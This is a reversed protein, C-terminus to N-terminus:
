FQYKLGAYYNRGAANIGSAFTRYQTDLINEVGAYLTAGYISKSSAKFNYTKWAPMGGQPAYQENDEGNPFYDSIDKKGNYLMYAEAMFYSHDYNIGIKGYYPAIHDLPSRTGDENIIRGLTYNFNATFLVNDILYSKISTSFGTVFAKGKNQNAMVQSISGNYDITESGNFTFEDTVIADFLRTYYYTYDLQFRKNNNKITFGLDATITKEPKLNENPVIVTANGSEFIKAVDDINPVRFGSSVNAALRVTKSPYHIIGTTASYTFHKQSISTFPLQFISNDAITSKLSAYGGRAGINWSTHINNKTNYTIYTDTRLMNNKGNPYRTDITETEGTNINNSYASSNLDDYYAELGYQLDGSTFGKKLDANLAFVNVKEIRNQLNYNGFRRNHRSEEVNQYSVTIKLDSGIIAKDKTFTYASLIRKQPGYFWEANRLGSGNPDTLRDYRPIDSSTSFQLNLDHLNGNDQKYALKQMFNYQKYGSFKQVYKNDNPMLVDVGNQTTVYHDREGFYDAGHNKKRGMKLDGFDNYSFSTFSALKTGAYNLDFYATKEENASSFRTIAKGSFIKKTDNIFQAKKTSINIAGGLADSGFVTSSPGFFVDLNEISNADVTIINQLHGARFILNNMRIGDVLLLIRNAEFGRIVPSGGGQQSKQITVTGSNALIEATNQPNQFEIENKSIIEIQQPIDKKPKLYKQTTIVVEELHKVETTDKKTQTYASLTILTLLSFYKKM